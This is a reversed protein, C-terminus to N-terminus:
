IVSDCIWISNQIKFKNSKFLNKKPNFLNNPFWTYLRFKIETKVFAIKTKCKLHIQHVANNEYEAKTIPVNTM